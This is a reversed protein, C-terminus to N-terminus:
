SLFAPIHIYKARLIVYKITDHIERFEIQVLESNVDGEAHAKALVELAKDSKGKAILYRPSEPVLRYLDSDAL